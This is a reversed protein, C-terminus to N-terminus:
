VTDTLKVAWLMLEVAFSEYKETAIYQQQSTQKTLKRSSSSSSIFIFFFTVVATGIMVQAGDLQKRQLLLAEIDEALQTEGHGMERFRECSMSIEDDIQKAQHTEVTSKFITVCKVNKLEGKKKKKM